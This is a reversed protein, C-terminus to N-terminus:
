RPWPSPRGEPLDAPRRPAQPGSRTRGADPRRGCARLGPGGLGPDGQRADAPRAPAGGLRLLRCQLALLQDAVIPPPPAGLDNRTATATAMALERQGEAEQLLATEFHGFWSLQSRRNAEARLSGEHLALSARRTRGVGPRGPVLGSLRRGGLSPGANRGGPRRGPGGRVPGRGTGTDGCWAELLALSGLGSVKWVSYTPGQHRWGGTSGTGPRASLGRGPLPCPWRVGLGDDRAVASPDAEHHGADPADDSGTWCTSPRTPWTSPSTPGPDGSSWPPWSSRPVAASRRPRGASDAAVRGLIDEASAASGESGQPHRPPPQRGATRGPGSPCRASGGSSPPWRARRSCRPVRAWSSMSRRM